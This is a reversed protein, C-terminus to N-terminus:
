SENSQNELWEHYSEREQKSARRFSIIRSSAGRDTHVVTLVALFGLSYSVSMMRVEGARLQAVDFRYHSLLVEGAHAFDLGHKALNAVRKAEDWTLKLTM